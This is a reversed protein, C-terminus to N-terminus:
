KGQSIDEFIFESSFGLAIGDTGVQGIKIEGSKKPLDILLTDNSLFETDTKKGNVFVRSCETFNEGHIYLKDGIASVSSIKIECVGMRMDKTAYREKDSCTYAYGEGYLIDYEMIKLLGDYQEVEGKSYAMHLKNVNGIRYGLLDFVLSSLQYAEVDDVDNQSVDAGYNNWIVYETTFINGDSLDENSIELGPLHDGYLVLVTPEDFSSLASILAGVFADTGNIQNVYYEFAITDEENEFGKIKIKQTEDIVERPYKGHGQVSVAYIFDSGETSNLSNFIQSTLVADKAWGLPNQEVNQMYELSTYTDFGLNAYVEHRDYFTGSHNHIAHSTYGLEGLLYPMSECATDSLVTKYPYEGAGFHSINMGTIIEFETNATGAGLSPVSLLAHPSNKKLETFVPVPDLSFELEKLYKADFFAELQLFIVNPRLSTEVTDEGLESLIEEIKKEGYDESKEIGRDIVSRSFCYAFGYTEYDEGLNGFDEPLLENASAYGTVLSVSVLLGLLVPVIRKYRVKHRPTNKWVWVTLTIFAIIAVVILLLQWMELYIGIIGWVSDLLAIDIFGIPTIRYSLVVSNSIGLALWLASIVFFPIHKNSFLLSFCLTLLIILVNYLYILPSQFVYKVAEFLSHRSIIEIFLYLLASYTCYFSLTHAKIYEDARCLIGKLKQVNNQRQGM